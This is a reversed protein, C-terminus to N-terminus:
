RLADIKKVIVAKTDDEAFEVGLEAALARLKEANMKKVASKSPIEPAAPSEIENGKGDEVRIAAQKALVDDEDIDHINNLTVPEEEEIVNGRMDVVEEKPFEDEAEMGAINLVEDDEPLKVEVEKVTTNGLKTVSSKPAPAPAPAAKKVPAATKGDEQVYEVVVQIRGSEIDIKMDKKNRPRKPYVEGDIELTEGAGLWLGHKPVWNYHQRTETPNILKTKTKM